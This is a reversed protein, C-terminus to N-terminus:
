KSPNQVELRAQISSKIYEFFENNIKKIRKIGDSKNSFKLDFYKWKSRDGYDYIEWGTEHYTILKYFVTIKYRSILFVVNCQYPFTAPFKPNLKIKLSDFTTNLRTSVGRYEVKPRFLNPITNGYFNNYINNNNSIEEKEVEIFYDNPNEDIWKAVVDIDLIETYNSVEIIDLSFIEALFDINIMETLAEKIEILIKDIEDRSSYSESIRKIAETLSTEEKKYDLIEKEYKTIDINKIIDTVNCFIDSMTGQAVFYPTQKSSQAFKDKIYEIISAYSIENGKYNLIAEAFSKTFHSITDVYSSQHSHSSFMFYLNSIAKEQEFIQAVELDGKIYPIGSNCADVVKVTLKPDVRRIQQDIFNNSLTTTNYKEKSYDTLVFRLDEEEGDYTGHGTYYFFLEGIEEERIGSFFSTLSEKVNLSDTKEYIELIDTYKNTAKLIDSILKYDNKCGLLPTINEYDSVAIIIAVNKM